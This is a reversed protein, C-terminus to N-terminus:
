NPPSDAVFFNEEDHEVRIEVRHCEHMATICIKQMDQLVMAPM